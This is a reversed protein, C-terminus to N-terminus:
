PKFICEFSLINISAEENIGLTLAFALFDFDKLDKNLFNPEPFVDEHHGSESIHRVPNFDFLV